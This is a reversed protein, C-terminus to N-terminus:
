VNAVGEVEVGKYYGCEKCVRHALKPAGCQPCSVVGPANLKYHTRRKRKRTKSTRRFPVAM